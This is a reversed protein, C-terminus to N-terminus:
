IIAELEKMIEVSFWNLHLLLTVHRRCSQADVIKAHYDEAAVKPDEFGNDSPMTVPYETLKGIRYPYLGSVAVSSDVQFLNSVTKLLEMNVDLYPFRFSSSLRSCVELECNAQFGTLTSYHVHKLGHAGVVTKGDIRVLADQWRTFRQPFGVTVYFAPPVTSLQLAHHMYSHILENDVEDHELDDVDCTVQLNYGKLKPALLYSRMVVGFKDCRAKMM